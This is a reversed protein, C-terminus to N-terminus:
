ARRELLVAAAVRGRSMRHAIGLERAKMVVQDYSVGIKEACLLLPMGEIRLRQLAALMEDTWILHPPIAHRTMASM